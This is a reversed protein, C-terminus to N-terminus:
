RRVRLAPVPQYRNQYSHLWITIKKAVWTDCRVGEPNSKEARFLPFTGSGVWIDNQLLLSSVRVARMRMASRVFAVNGAFSGGLDVTKVFAHAFSMAQREAFADLCEVSETM